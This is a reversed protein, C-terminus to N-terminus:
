EAHYVKEMINQYMELGPIIKYDCDGVFCRFETREELPNFFAVMPADHGQNICLIPNVKGEISMQYYTSFVRHEM